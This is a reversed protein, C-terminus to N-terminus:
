ADDQPRRSELGTQSPFSSKAPFQVPDAPEGRPHVWERLAARTATVLATVRTALPFDSPAELTYCPASKRHFLYFAEPWDPRSDPHHYPRVVGGQARRGEIVPSLDIPCVAKVHRIIEEALSSQPDSNIEYLYFGHAEWDEHLCISLHIPPLRELWAVHARVEPTRPHRYDRNLDSGGANERRGLVFGSPNLCPCMWLEVPEPWQNEEVLRRCALPGAPEDGHIGSSIYVRRSPNVRAPRHLTLLKPGDESRVVEARWGDEEAARRVETLVSQIEITEGYYGGMNKNLRKM